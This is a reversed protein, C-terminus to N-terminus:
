NELWLITFVGFHDSPFMGGATPQNLVIKSAQVMLTRKSPIRAFIHDIRREPLEPHSATYPNAHSWTYGPDDPHISSFTDLFGAKALLQIEDSDPTANFDGALICPLPSGEADIWGILEKVQQERISADEPKWSLHTVVFLFEEGDPPLIRCIQCYRFYSERPSVTQYCYTKSAGIPFRSFTVLGSEQGAFAIESIGAIKQLDAAQDKQFVEQLGVLDPELATIGKGILPWRERNFSKGGWTNFTLIKLQM